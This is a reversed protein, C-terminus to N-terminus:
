EKNNQKITQWDASDLVPRGMSGRADTRKWGTQGAGRSCAFRASPISFPQVKRESELRRHRFLLRRAHDQAGIKSKAKEFKSEGWCVGNGKGQSSRISLKNGQALNRDSLAWPSDMASDLSYIPFVRYFFGGAPVIPANIVRLISTAIHSFAHVKFAQYRTM